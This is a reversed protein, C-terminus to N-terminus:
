AKKNCKIKGADDVTKSDSDETKNDETTTCKMEKEKM